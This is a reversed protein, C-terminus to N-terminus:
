VIIANSGVLAAEDTLGTLNEIIAIDKWVNGTEVSNVRVLSNKGSDTIQIFNTIADTTEDYGSLLLRLDIRDGQSLNLDKIRDISNIDDIVFVDGGLGGYLSDNGKGGILVDNGTDGYLMDHGSGGILRDNGADGRITDNGDGGTIANDLINARANQVQHPGLMLELNEINEPLIYNSIWTRVTDIGGHTFEYIAENGQIVSYIDNENTGYMQDTMFDNKKLSSKQTNLFTIADSNGLVLVTNNGDQFLNKQLDFFSSIGHGELKLINTGQGAKFDTIVDHGGGKQHIFVDIGGGGTLWDNGGKGNIINNSTGGIVTNAISNGHGEQAFNAKINLHEINDHLATM